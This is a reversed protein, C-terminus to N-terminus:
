VLRDSTPDHTEPPGFRRWSACVALHLTVQTQFKEKLHISTASAFVITKIGRYLSCSLNDIEHM